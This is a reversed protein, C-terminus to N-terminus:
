NLADMLKSFINKSEKKQEVEGRANAFYDKTVDVDVTATKDPLKMELKGEANARIDNLSSYKLLDVRLAEGVAIESKIDTKIKTLSDQMGYIKGDRAITAVGLLFIVSAVQLVGKTRRSNLESLRRKKERLKKEEDIVKNKEKVEEYKRKPKVATNGRIYDYEREVM